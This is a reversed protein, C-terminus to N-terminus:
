LKRWTIGYRGEFEKRSAEIADVESLGKNEIAHIM